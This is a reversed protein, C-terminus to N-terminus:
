WSRGSTSTGPPWSPSSRRPRGGGAPRPAGGGPGPVALPRLRRAAAAERLDSPSRCSPRASCSPASGPPWSRARDPGRLHQVVGALQRHRPQHHHHGRLPDHPPSSSWSCRGASAPVRLFAFAYAALVSTVLQGTVIITTQIVSNRLYLGPARRDLGQRLLGLQPHVPFLLPPQRDLQSPALLSNVVTMYLPFLSWARRRRQAARLARGPPRRRHRRHPRAPAPAAGAPDDVAADDPMTCGGSSSGSSAVTLVLTIAFLAISMVAARRPEAPRSRRTCTYILVNTHEFAANQPGILIDIQGFTQFAYITAVVLGFFLTPSLLPVTVRWFM